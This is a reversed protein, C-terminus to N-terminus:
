GQQEFGETDIAPSFFFFLRGREWRRCAQFFPSPSSGRKAEMVRLLARCVQMMHMM